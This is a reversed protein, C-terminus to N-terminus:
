LKRSNEKINERRGHYTEKYDKSCWLEPTIRHINKRQEKGYRYRDFRESKMEVINIRGGLLFQQLQFWLANYLFQRSLCPLAASLVSFPSTLSAPYIM